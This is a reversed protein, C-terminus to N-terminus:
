AIKCHYGANQIFSDTDLIYIIYYNELTERDIVRELLFEELLHKNKKLKTNLTDTNRRRCNEMDETKRSFLTPFSTLAIILSTKCTRYIASIIRLGRSKVSSEYKLGLTYTRNKQLYHQVQEGFLEGGV